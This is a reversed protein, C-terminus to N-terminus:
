QKDREEAEYVAMVTNVLKIELRKVRETLNNYTTWDKLQVPLTMRDFEETQLREAELLRAAINRIQENM